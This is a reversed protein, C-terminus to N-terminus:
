SELVTALRKGVTSTAPAVTTYTWRRRRGFAGVVVRVADSQANAGVHWTSGQCRIVEAGTRDEIRPGSFDCGEVLLLASLTPNLLPAPTDRHACARIGSLEGNRVREDVDRDDTPLSV